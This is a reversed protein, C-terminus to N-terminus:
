QKGYYEKLSDELLGLVQQFEIADEPVIGGKFLESQVYDLIETTYEINKIPLISLITPLPNYDSPNYIM